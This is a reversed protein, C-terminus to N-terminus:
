FVHGKLRKYIRSLSPIPIIAGRGLAEGGGEL